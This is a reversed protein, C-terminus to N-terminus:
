HALAMFPPRTIRACKYQQPWYIINAPRMFVSLNHALTHTHTYYASLLSRTQTTSHRFSNSFSCPFSLSLPQCRISNYFPRAGSLCVYRMFQMGFCFINSYMLRRGVVNSKKRPSLFLVRARACARSITVHLVACVSVIYLWVLVLLVSHLFLVIYVGAPLVSYFLICFRLM